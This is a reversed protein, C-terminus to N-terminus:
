KAEKGTLPTKKKWYNITVDPKPPPNTRLEEQQQRHIKRNKKRKESAVTLEVHKEDYLDHITELFEMAQENGVEGQLVMYRANGQRYRPLEKPIEPINVEQGQKRMRRMERLSQNHNFLMFTFQQGRGEFGSFGELHNWNLNSAVELVENPKGHSWLKLLTMEKDFTTASVTFFHHPIDARPSATIESHKQKTIKQPTM